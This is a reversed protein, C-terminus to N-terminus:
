KSSADEVVELEDVQKKQKVIFEVPNNQTVNVEVTEPEDKDLAYKFVNEIARLDGKMALQALKVVIQTQVDLNPKKALDEFANLLELDKKKGRRMPMALLTQLTENIMKKQKRREQSIKGGKSRLARAEEPPLENLPILNDEKNM